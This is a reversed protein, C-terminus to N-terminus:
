DFSRGRRRVTFDPRLSIESLSAWDAKTVHKVLELFYFDENFVVKQRLYDSLLKYFAENKRDFKDKQAFPEENGM